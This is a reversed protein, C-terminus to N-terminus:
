RSIKSMRVPHGFFNTQGALLTMSGGVWEFRSRRDGARNEAISKRTGTRTGTGSYGYPVNSSTRMCLSSTSCGPGIPNVTRGLASRGSVAAVVHGTDPDTLLTAGEQQRVAAIDDDTQAAGVQELVAVVQQTETEHHPQAAAMPGISLASAFLVPVVLVPSM